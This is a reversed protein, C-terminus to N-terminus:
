KGRWHARHKWPAVPKRDQWLGRKAQRAEQQLQKLATDKRAYKSNWWALGARVIEQSASHEGVFIEGVERGYTKDGTLRVRVAKGGILQTMFVKAERSYPQEPWNRNATEPADVGYFRVRLIESKTTEVVATDGDSVSVVKGDVWEEALAASTVLLLCFALLAPLCTPLRFTARRTEAAGSVPQRTAPSRPDPLSVSQPNM